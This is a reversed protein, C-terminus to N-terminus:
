LGWWDVTRVDSIVQSIHQDRQMSSREVHARAEQLKAQAFSVDEQQKSMADAVASWVIYKSWHDFIIDPLEDSDSSLATVVPTYRLRLTGGSPAPLVRINGGRLGYYLRTRGDWTIFEIDNRDLYNEHKREFPFVTIYDSEGVPLFSVDTLTLFDAPLAYDSQDAVIAISDTSEFYDSHKTVLIDYLSRLGDNIFETWEANTIFGSDTLDSLHQARTRLTALTEAM